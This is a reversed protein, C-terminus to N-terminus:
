HSLPAAMRVGSFYNSEVNAQAKLRQFAEMQAKAEQTQGLALYVRALLYHASPDSADAEIAKQCYNLAERTQNRELCVKALGALADAYGPRYQLAKSYLKWASDLHHSLFALEALQYYSGSHSPHLQLEREYEAVAAKHDGSVLLINGLEYHLGLATPNGKIALRLQKAAAPYDHNQALLNGLMEHTLYSNPDKQVLTKMIQRARSMHFWFNDYLVQPDDPYMKILATYVADAQDMRDAEMCLKGLRLGILHKFQRSISSDQVDFSKQLLPISQDVHGLAAESLGWFAEAAPFNPRLKVAQQLASAAAPYDGKEFQAMGLQLYLPASGPNRRILERFVVAAHGFNGSTMAQRAEQYLQQNSPGPPGQCYGHLSFFSVVGLFLLYPWWFSRAKFCPKAGYRDHPQNHLKGMNSLGQQKCALMHPYLPAFRRAYSNRRFSGRFELVGQLFEAPACVEAETEFLRGDQSRRGPNRGTIASGHKHSWKFMLPNSFSEPM